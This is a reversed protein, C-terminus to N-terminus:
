KSPAQPISRNMPPLEGHIGAYEMILNSELEKAKDNNDIQFYGLGIDQKEIFRFSIKTYFESATHMSNENYFDSVRKKLGNSDTTSGIYLIASSGSFRSIKKISLNNEELLFLIYVGAVNMNTEKFDKFSQNITMKNFYEEIDNISSYKTNLDIRRIVKPHKM